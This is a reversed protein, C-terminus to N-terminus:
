SQPCVPLELAPFRADLPNHLMDAFFALTGALGVKLARHFYEPKGTVRLLQLFTYANGAVGHCLGYGKRLLGRRWVVEGCRVAVQLYRQDGFVQFAHGFLHVCGPAGHCWHVLTDNHVSELSAPFNGSPLALSLLHDISPKVLSLVRTRLSPVAPLALGDVTNM